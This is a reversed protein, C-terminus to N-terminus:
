KKAKEELLDPTLFRQALFHEKQLISLTKFANQFSVERVGSYVNEFDITIQERIYSFDMIEGAGWGPAHYVLNGKEIHNLLLFNSLAGQFNGVGRLGVIRMKDLFRPANSFKKQLIEQALQAFYPSNTNEIDFFLRYLEFQEEENTVTTILLLIKEIHQGFQEKFEAEKAITLITAIEQYDAVDMQCYEDWLQLFNHFDRALARTRFEEIYAMTGRMKFM